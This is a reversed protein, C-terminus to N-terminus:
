AVSPWFIDDARRPELPRRAPRTASPATGVELAKRRFAPGHDVPLGSEHQWQHIMEHALTSTIEHEGHPTKALARELLPVSLRIERHRQPSMGWRQTSVRPGVTTVFLGVSATLRTSWVIDVPPLTGGFYRANLASWIAALKETSCPLDRSRSM